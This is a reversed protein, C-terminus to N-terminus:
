GEHIRSIKTLSAWLETCERSYEASRDSPIIVICKAIGVRRASVLVSGEVVRTTSLSGVELSVTRM